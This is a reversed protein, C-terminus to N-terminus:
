WLQRMQTTKLLSILKPPTGARGPKPSGERLPTLHEPQAASRPRLKSGERVATHKSELHVQPNPMFNMNRATHFGAGYTGCQEPTIIDQCETLARTIGNKQTIGKLIDDVQMVWTRALHIPKISSSCHNVKSCHKSIDQSFNWLFMRFYLNPARVCLRM